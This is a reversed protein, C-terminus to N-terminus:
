GEVAGEVASVAGKVACGFGEIWGDRFGEPGAQEEGGEVEDDENAREIAEGGDVALALDCSGGFELGPERLVDRAVDVQAQQM